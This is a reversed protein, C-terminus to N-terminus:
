PYLEVGYEEAAKRWYEEPVQPWPLLQGCEKQYLQAAWAPVVGCPDNGTLVNYRLMAAWVPARAALGSTELERLTRQWDYPIRLFEPRWWGEELHLLTMQAVKALETAQASGPRARRCVPNGVSGVCVLRKGQHFLSWQKHNHGKLLLDPGLAALQQLTGDEGRMAARTKQPSGHCLAVAPAGAPRWEDYIPLSQFWALDKETLNEYCHLLAGQSSCERWEEPNEQHALMYEERNGRIFRCAYRSKVQYLLELVRQPYPHDTVYDGLFLYNEVGRTQAYDLCAKLALYNGHVDALVAARM